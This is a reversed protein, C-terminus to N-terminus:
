VPATAAEQALHSTAAALARGDAPAVDLEDLAREMAWLVQVVDADTVAGLHGVRLMQGTMKGQGGAIVVGYKTRLVKRFASVDLGPMPVASTVTASRFGEAAFLQLGLAALGAETADALRRHRAYVNDLGEEEMMRIGEQVAYLVSVAPTWPTSGNEANKRAQRWDFYYRPSRCRESLEWARDNVTVFSIGPPAMWGKQSASVAVDVGLEDVGIRMSSVSSVGDVAVVRGADHAVRVLGALGNTVGTSTENHTLLVVRAQPHAALVEALDAPDVPQGWEAELRVLHAGYAAAMGAFREGFNGCMAAVVEDGPSLLNAIASELGGSGSATLVLLDGSTEFVRRAGETVSALLEAFEPGRHDIM